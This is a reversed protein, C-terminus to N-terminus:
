GIESPPTKSVIRLLGTDNLIQDRSFSDRDYIQLSSISSLLPTIRDKYNEGIGSWYHTAPEEGTASLSVGFMEEEAINNCEEQDSSSIVLTWHSM